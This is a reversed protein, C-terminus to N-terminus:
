DKLDQDSTEPVLWIIFMGIAFILSTVRGIRAYDSRFFETLMGTAFVTIATLIRGFNFSVGAGASRARTPFLEPLCLPLWGFYIGSFFGLAAVWWLFSQDLPLVFWFTYQAIVLACFSTLFYTWRRGLVSAIWGGLLSGIIGTFARVQNVQAKLFQNPPSVSEAAEAAWPVMWNASGWGGIIPITALMIGTLTLWLLPPRFIQRTQLNPNLLSGKTQSDLATAHAALWRPSEPVAILAFIGLVVPAAAVLMVWEWNESTVAFNAAATSMLFIGINAATGIIGAAVPRSLSSWAESVLAVGNPWMGGVGTCALFWCLWLTVPRDAFYAGGAMTSYTVIALGMGRTRGFRDGLAGFCLGGLAAGFLFACQMWSFWRSILTKATQFQSYESSNLAKEIPIETKKAAEVKSNLEIYEHRNISGAQDLLDVVAPRMAVSTISLHIGACLWGLFATFLM